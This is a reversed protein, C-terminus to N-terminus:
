LFIYEDEYSSCETDEEKIFQVIHNNKENKYHKETGELLLVSSYVTNPSPSEISCRNEIKQNKKKHYVYGVLGFCFIPIIITSNFKECFSVFGNKINKKVSIYFNRIM